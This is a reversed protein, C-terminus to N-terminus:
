NKLHLISSLVRMLSQLIMPKPRATSKMEQNPATSSHNHTGETHIWRSGLTQQKKFSRKTQHNCCAGRNQYQEQTNLAVQHCWRRSTRLGTSDTKMLSTKSDLHLTIFAEESQRDARIDISQAQCWWQRGKLPNVTSSHRTKYIEAMRTTSNALTMRDTTIACTVIQTLVVGIPHTGWWGCKDTGKLIVRDQNASIKGTDKILIKTQIWKTQINYKKIIIFQM